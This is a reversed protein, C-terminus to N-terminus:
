LRPSSSIYIVCNLAASGTSKCLANPLEGGGKPDKPIKPSCRCGEEQREIGRELDWGSGSGSGSKKASLSPSISDKVIPPLLSSSEYFIARNENAFCSLIQNTRDNSINRRHIMGDLERIEFKM